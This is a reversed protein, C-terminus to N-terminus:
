SAVLSYARREWFDECRGSLKACRRAMIANAGRVTWPIGARKLRTGIAVKCGAEGVARSTGLGQASCAPYRRRRRNGWRYGLCKRGADRQSAGARARSHAALAAVIKPLNGAALDDPRAAEQLAQRRCAVEVAEFDLTAAVGPGLLAAVERGTEAQFAACLGRKAGGGPLGRGAAARRV